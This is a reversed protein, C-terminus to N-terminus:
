DGLARAIALATKEVGGNSVNTLVLYACATLTVIHRM